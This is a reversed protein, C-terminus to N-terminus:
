YKEAMVKLIAKVKRDNETKEALTTIVYDKIEDNKKLSEMVNCYKTEDTSKENENWKKLEKKWVDFEQGIWRPIETRGIMLSTHAPKAKAIKLERDQKYDMEEKKKKNIYQILITRMQVCSRMNNEYRKVIAEDYVGEKHRCKEERHGLMPINCNGCRVYEYKGM